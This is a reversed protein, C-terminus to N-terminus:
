GKERKEQKMTYMNQDAEHLVDLVDREESWVACGLSMSLTYDFTSYERNWTDMAEEIRQILQENSRCDHMPTVIIFEDGGFRCLFDSRRVAGRLLDACIRIVGDGHLHGYTDNIAKFNDIDLIVFSLKEHYRKAKQIDRVITENFYNRNYLGTLTDRTALQKLSEQSRRLRSLLMDLQDYIESVLLLFVQNETDGGADAQGLLDERMEGKVVEVMKEWSEDTVQSSLEVLVRIDESLSKLAKYLQNKEPM